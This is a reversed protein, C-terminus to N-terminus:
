LVTDWTRACKSVEPMLYDNSYDLITLGGTLCLVFLPKPMATMDRYGTWTRAGRGFHQRQVPPVSARKM